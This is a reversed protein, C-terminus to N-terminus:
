NSEEGWLCDGGNHRLDSQINEEVLQMRGSEQHHHWIYGEIDKMGGKIDNIQDENFGEDKLYEELTKGLKEAEETKIRKLERTAARIYENQIM